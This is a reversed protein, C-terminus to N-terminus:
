RSVSSSVAHLCLFSKGQTNLFSSLVRAVKNIYLWTVDVWSEVTGAELGPHLELTEKKIDGFCSYGSFFSSGIAVTM